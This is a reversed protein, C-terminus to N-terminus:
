NHLAYIGSISNEIHFYVTIACYIFKKERMILIEARYKTRLVPEFVFLM